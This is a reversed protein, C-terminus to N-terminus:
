IKIKRPTALIRRELVDLFRYENSSVHTFKYDENPSNECEIFRALSRDKEFISKINITITKNKLKKSVTKGSLIEDITRPNVGSFLALEKRGIKFSDVFERPKRPTGKCDWEKSEAVWWELPIEGLFCLYLVSLIKVEASTSLQASLRWKYVLLKQYIYQYLHSNQLNRASFKKQKMLFIKEIENQEIKILELPWISKQFPLGALINEKGVTHHNLMCSNGWNFFAFIDIGFIIVDGEGFIELVAARKKVGKASIKESFSGIGTRSLWSFANGSKVIYFDFFQKNSFGMEIFFLPTRDTIPESIEIKLDNPLHFRYFFPSNEKLWNRLESKEEKGSPVKFKIEYM